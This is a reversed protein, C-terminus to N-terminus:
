RAVELAGGVGVATGDLREAVREGAGVPREDDGGAQEAERGPPHRGLPVVAM